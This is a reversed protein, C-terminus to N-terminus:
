ATKEAKSEKLFAAESNLSRYYTWTDNQGVFRGDEGANGLVVLPKEPFHAARDSVASNADSLPYHRYRVTM